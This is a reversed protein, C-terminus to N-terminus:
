RLRLGHLDARRKGVVGRADHQEARALQALLHGDLQLAQAGLHDGDVAIGVGRGHLHRVAAVDNRHGVGLHQVAQDHGLGRVDDHRLDLGDGGVGQRGDLRRTQGADDRGGAGGLQGHVALADATQGGFLQTQRGTGVGEGARGLFQRRAGLGYAEGAEDLRDHRGRALALGIDLAGILDGLGPGIGFGRAPDRTAPDDDLAADVEVILDGQQRHPRQAVARHPRVEAGGDAMALLLAVVDFAPLRLDHALSRQLGCLVNGALDRVRQAAEADEADLQEDGAVLDPEGLDRRARVVGSQHRQRGLGHALEGQM